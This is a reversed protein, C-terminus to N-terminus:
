FSLRPSAGGPSCNALSQPPFIALHLFRDTPRRSNRFPTAAPAPVSAPALASAAVTSGSAAFAAAAAVGAGRPTGKGGGTSPSGGGVVSTSVTFRVPDSKMTSTSLARPISYTHETATQLK